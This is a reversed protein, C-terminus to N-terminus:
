VKFIWSHPIYQQTAPHTTGLTKNMGEFYWSGSMWHCMTVNKFVQMRLSMETLVESIM